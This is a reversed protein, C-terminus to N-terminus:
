RRDLRCPQLAPFQQAPYRPREPLSHQVDIADSPPVPRDLPRVQLRQQASDALRRKMLALVPGQPCIAGFETADRVGSWRAAPQPAKWRLNGTPATAYPIGRYVTLGTTKDLVEGRLSGADTSIVAGEGGAALVAHPPLALAILVAAVPLVARLRRDTM